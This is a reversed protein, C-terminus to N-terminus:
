FPVEKLLLIRPKQGYKVVNSRDVVMLFRRQVSPVMPDSDSLGKVDSERYGRVIFWVAFFDSRTSLASTASAALELREAFSDKIKTNPDVGVSVGAKADIADNYGLFDINNPDKRTAGLNAKDLKKALLVEGVSSLGPAERLATVLTSESRGNLLKFEDPKVPSGDNDRFDIPKGTATPSSVRPWVLGKDRYAVLTSAVDSRQDLNGGTWWWENSATVPTPSLVGVSRLVTRSATNVNIRGMVPRDVGWLQNSLGDVRDFITLALPVAQGRVQDSGAKRDFMKDGDADYFPVFRDIAVHGRDLKPYEFDTPGSAAKGMGYYLFTNSPSSYDLANALSEGLTLYRDNATAQFPDFEPGVALPLLLDAVRVSAARLGTVFSARVDNYAQGSGNAGLSRKSWKRPETTLDRDPLLPNTSESGWLLMIREYGTGDGSGSFTSKDITANAPGTITQNKLNASAWKGELMYAPVGDTRPDFSGGAPDANRRVLGFRTISFGTDDQPDSNPGGKTGPIEANNTGGLELKQNFTSTGSSFDPDRLRDILQDNALYQKPLADKQLDKPDENTPGTPETPTRLARWLRVMEITKDASTSSSDNSVLDVFNSQIKRAGTEPNFEEIMTPLKDGSGLNVAMQKDLWAKVKDPTFTKKTANWRSVIDKGTTSHLPLCMAYFVRTEGPGLAAASFNVSPNLVDFNALRFYRGGFEIYYEFRDQLLLPQGDGMGNQTLYITTDFPNTLQFAVVQMLFDDNSLDVDGDITIPKGIIQDPNGDGDSDIEEWEQDGSEGYTAATAKTPIDTYVYFSAAASLVPQPTIGYVNIAKSELVDGSASDGLRSKSRLTADTNSPNDWDKGIDLKGFGAQNDVWWSWPNARSGIPKGESRQNQDLWDQSLNPRYDEDLLVTYAYTSSSTSDTAARFNAALHAAMRAGLEASNAGYNGFRVKSFEANGNAWANDMASDPILTDAYVGYLTSTDTTLVRRVDASTLRDQAPPVTVRTSILPRSGSLPTIRQRVDMCSWLMADIDAKGDPKAASVNGDRNDVDRELSLPRNDRLPSFRVTERDPDKGQSKNRYRGGLLRELQSTVSPDNIGRYTLLEALDEISTLASLEGSTSLGRGFGLMENYMVARNKPEPYTYAAYTTQNIPAAPILGTFLAGEDPASDSHLAHYAYEGVLLSMGGNLSAVYKTYNEALKDQPDLKIDPQQLGGYGLQLDANSPDDSLPDVLSLIRRFDVEPVLGITNEPDATPAGKMDMATLVNARGSLDEVRVAFFYRLGDDTKLLNKIKSLDHADVMECWRADYFGDGDTDAFQYDLYNAANPSQSVGTSLITNAPRFLGRQRNTTHAPIKFILTGGFDLQNSPDGNQDLLTLADQMQSPTANLGHLRLNHLNVFRGDPAVNSIAAWDRMQEFTVRKTGDDAYGLYTPVSAALFPDSPGRPDVGASTWQSTYTGVPNFSDVPDTSDSRDTWNVGPIDTVERVNFPGSSDAGLNITAFVDDGIIKAVHDAFQNPVDDRAEGRKVGRQTGADTKGITVYVVAFVSMLALTAVVLVLFSGRRNREVGAPAGAVARLLGAGFRAARRVTTLFGGGREPARRSADDSTQNIPDNM